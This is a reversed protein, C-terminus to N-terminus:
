TKNDDFQIAGSVNTSSMRTLRDYSYLTTVYAGPHAWPKVVDTRYGKRGSRPGFRLMKISIPFIAKGPANFGFSDCMEKLLLIGAETRM